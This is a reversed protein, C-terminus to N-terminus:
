KRPGQRFKRWLVYAIVLVAAGATAAIALSDLEKQVTKWREGLFYGLGVFTSVWLFGGPYAYLAFHRPEVDSM